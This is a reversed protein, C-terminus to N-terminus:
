QVVTFVFDHPADRHCGACLASGYSDAYTTGNAVEYWFWGSGDGSAAAKEIFAYGEIRDSDDLLEKVSAAGIPFPADAPTTAILENSCIRNRSHASGPRAPHSTQECRWTLYEGTGLWAAASAATRRPPSVQDGDDTLSMDSPKAACASLSVAIVLFRQM